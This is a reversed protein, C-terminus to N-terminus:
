VSQCVRDRGAARGIGLPAGRIAAEVARHRARLDQAQSADARAVIDRGREYSSWGMDASPGAQVKRAQREQTDPVTACAALGAALTLWALYRAARGPDYAPTTM